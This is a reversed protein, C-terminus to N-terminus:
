PKHCLRGKQPKRQAVVRDVRERLCVDCWFKQMTAYVLNAEFWAHCTRCQVAQVHSRGLEADLERQYEPSVSGDRRPRLHRPGSLKASQYHVSRERVAHCAKCHYSYGRTGAGPYFSKNPKESKCAKCYLV